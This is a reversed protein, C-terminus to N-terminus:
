VDDGLWIRVGEWTKVCEPVAVADWLLVVDCSLVGLVVAVCVTVLPSVGVAVGVCVAVVDTVAERLAECVGVGEGDIVGVESCVAERVDELLEVTDAVGERGALRAWVAENLWSRLVLAEVVEHDVIGLVISGVAERDKVPEVVVKSLSDAVPAIPDPAGV